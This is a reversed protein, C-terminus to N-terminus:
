NNMNQNAYAGFGNQNPNNNVGGINSTNHTQDVVNEETVSNEEM